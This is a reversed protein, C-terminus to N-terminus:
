FRPAGTADQTRRRRAWPILILAGGAIVMLVGILYFSGSGDAAFDSHATSKLPSKVQAPRAPQSRAPTTTAVHHNGVLGASGLPVTTPAKQGKALLPLTQLIVNMSNNDPQGVAFVRTLVSAQVPLDLPGLVVPKKEGTPVVKVVHTGSPVDAAAFEGNAINSFVVQGDVVIDAPPVVATHAVVVRGKDAGATKLNNHYVNVVAKGKVSAPRHLVVDTNSGARVHITTKMTMGSKAGTFTITHKGTSLYLPDSVAETQLATAAQHDVKASISKGPLAQILYVTGGQKARATSATGHAAVAAPATGAVLGALGVAVLTPTLKVPIEEWREDDDREAIIL